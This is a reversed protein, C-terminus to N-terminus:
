YPCDATQAKVEDTFSVVNKSTEDLCKVDGDRTLVCYAYRKGGSAIANDVGTFPVFHSTDRPTNGYAGPAYYASGDHNIVIGQVFGAQLKHADGLLNATVKSADGDGTVPLFFADGWRAACDVGGTARIGCVARQGVSLFIMPHSFPMKTPTAMVGPISAGGGQQWCWIEGKDSLACSAGYSGSIQVPEVPEPFEVQKLAGRWCEVRRAGPAGILACSSNDYAGTTSVVDSAIIATKPIGDVNGAFLAGDTTVVAAYNSQGSGSVHLVDRVESGDAWKLVKAAESAKSVCRAGGQETRYCAAYGGNGMASFDVGCKFQAFYAELDEVVYEAPAFPEGPNSADGELEVHLECTPAAQIGSSGFQLGSVALTTMANIQSGTVTITNGDKSANAIVQGQNNRLVDPVGNFSGSTFELTVTWSGVNRSDNNIINFTEANFYNGGNLNASFECSVM